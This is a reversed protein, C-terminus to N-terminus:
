ASPREDVVRKEMVEKTRLIVKVKELRRFTIHIHWCFVKVFTWIIKRSASRLLRDSLWSISGWQAQMRKLPTIFELGEKM